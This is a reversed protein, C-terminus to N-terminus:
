IRNIKTAENLIDNMKRELTQNHLVWTFNNSVHERGKKGLIEIMKKNKILLNCYKGFEKPDRKILYGTKGDIVTEKYGGENVAIVPTNCSMSEISALGFPENYSVCITMLAESYIKSLERDKIIMPKGNKIGLTKIKIKDKFINKITYFGNIYNKEGIFLVYNKRVNSRKKFINIDVGLHCVTTDKLNFVNKVNNMTFLSNCLITTASEINRKDISKRIKRTLYEYLYKFGKINKDISLEKEYVLRLYEQCFYLSPTKLYRLVFPAQTYKDAHVLVIDYKRKDIDSAINKNIYRLKVFNNFDRIIRELVGKPNMDVSFNYPFVNKCFPIINWVREDTSSYEYCDIDHKKSLYKMEEFLTRKAGGLPLNHFIAIKM